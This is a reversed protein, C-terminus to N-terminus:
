NRIDLGWNLKKRLTDMFTHNGTKILKAVFSEKKVTFNFGSQVSHSRSDLSVLFYNSRSIVELSIISKDSVVFPRINLNHPSVPTIIFSHSQPYIIPGGCSLSYGTSGTPTSIILGDAWYSNFFEGDLNVNVTIMSSTDQKLITFENLGFNVGKFVNADCEAHILMREDIKYNQNIVQQIVNEIEEFTTNSLFGLRGMNIALIPIEKDGIHTVSQLLTGDGGISIFFAIEDLSAGAKYVSIKDDAFENNALIEFFTESVIIEVGNKNLLGLLKEIHPITDPTFPKGHIAVKM